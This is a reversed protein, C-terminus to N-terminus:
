TLTNDDDHDNEELDLTDVADQRSTAIIDKDYVRRLLEVHETVLTYFNLKPLTDSSNNFTALLEYGGDGRPLLISAYTSDRSFEPLEASHVYHGMLDTRLNTNFDVMNNEKHHPAYTVM